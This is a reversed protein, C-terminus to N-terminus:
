SSIGLIIYISDKLARRTLSTLFILSLCPLFTEEKCVFVCLPGLVYMGKVVRVFRM